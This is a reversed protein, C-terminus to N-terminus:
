TTLGHTLVIQGNPIEPIKIVARTQIRLIADSVEKEGLEGIIHSNLLDQWGVDTLKLNRRSIIDKFRLGIRSYFAPKYVEKLASEAKILEQRFLEWREYKTEALAIFEDRLSIFRQSDTTSFRHSVLGSPIPIKVQEFIVALEKPIQPPVGISPEQESYVPYDQRVRDQFDALKGERIRLITPYRFQCIVEVLPNNKYLVRESEPFM